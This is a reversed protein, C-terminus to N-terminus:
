QGQINGVYKLINCGYPINSFYFPYATLNNIIFTNGYLVVNGTCNKLPSVQSQIWYWWNYFGNIQLKDYFYLLRRGLNIVAQEPTIENNGWPFYYIANEPPLTPDVFDIFFVSSYPVTGTNDAWAPVYVSVLRLKWDYGCIYYVPDSDWVCIIASYKKLTPLVSGPVVAKKYHLVASTGVIESDCDTCFEDSDNGKAISINGELYLPSYEFTVLFSQPVYLNKYDSDSCVRCLCCCDFGFSM